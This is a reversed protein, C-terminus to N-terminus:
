QPNRPQGALVTSTNVRAQAPTYYGNSQIVALEGSVRAAQLEAKVEARTKGAVSAAGGNSSNVYGQEYSNRRGQNQIAALEGSARAAKLEALVEARTKGAVPAAADSGNVYGQEYSNRRGQNQIAALEGSARAAKLEAVVEARTKAGYAPMAAVTRTTSTAEQAVAVGSMKRADTSQYGNQYSVGQIAALEGNARAAKLEAIVADRHLSSEQAQAIGAFSLAILAASIVTLKKM